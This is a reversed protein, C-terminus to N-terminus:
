QLDIDGTVTNLLLRNKSEKLDLRIEQGVFGSEKVLNPDANAYIEGMVTKAKFSTDKAPLDIKGTVTKLELDGKFKKIEIDGTVLQVSIKGELYESSLNGTISSLDLEVGEPVYIIYNIEFNNHDRNVVLGDGEAANFLEKSNSAIEINSGNKKVLLEFDETDEPKETEVSAKVLISSKNWTRLEIDSALDLDAKVSEGRYNVEKEVLKQAQLNIGALMVLAIILNKM